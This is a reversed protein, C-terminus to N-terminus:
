KIMIKNYIQNWIYFPSDILVAFSSSLCSSSYRWINANNSVSLSPWTAEVSSPFTNLATPNSGLSASNASNFSDKPFLSDKEWESKVIKMEFNGATSGWARRAAKSSAKWTKSWLEVPCIPVLSSRWMMVDKPSFNPSSSALSIILIASGVFDPTMWYSWNTSFKNALYFLIM